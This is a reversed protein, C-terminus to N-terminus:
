ESTKLIVLKFLSGLFEIAIPTEYGSTQVVHELGVQSVALALLAPCLVNGGLDRVAFDTWPRSILYTM